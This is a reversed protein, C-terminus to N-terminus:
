SAKCMVTIPGFFKGIGSTGRKQVAFLGFLIIITLPIVYKKFAPSVVELGEVASLVSIAPTIVGDSGTVSLSSLYYNSAATGTLQASLSYTHSSGVNKNDTYSGVGLVSVNDAGVKNAVAITAQAATNGNYVKAVNVAGLTVALPNIVLNGDQSTQSTFNTGSKVFNTLTIGYNGVASSSNYLRLSPMAALYASYDVNLRFGNIPFATTNKVNVRVELTGSQSIVPYLSGPALPLGTVPNINAARLRDPNQFAAPPMRSRAM